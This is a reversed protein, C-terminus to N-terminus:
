RSPLALAEQNRRALVKEPWPAGWRCPRQATSPQSEWPCNKSATFRTLTDGDYRFVSPSPTIPLLLAPGRAWLRAAGEEAPAVSRQCVPASREGPLPGRPGATWLCPGALTLRQQDRTLHGGTKPPAEASPGTESAGAGDRHGHGRPCREPWVGERGQVAVLRRGARQRAHAPGRPGFPRTQLFLWAEFRFSFGPFFHFHRSMTPGAPESEKSGELHRHGMVERGPGARTGPPWRRTTCVCAARQFLARQQLGKTVAKEPSEGRGKRRRRANNEPFGHPSLPALLESALDMGRSTRTFLTKNACRWAWESRRQESRRPLSRGNRCLGYSGRLWFYKSDSGERPVHGVDQQLLHQLASNKSPFM